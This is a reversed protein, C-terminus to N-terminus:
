IVQSLSVDVPWAKWYRTRHEMMFAPHYWSRRADFRTQWKGIHFLHFCNLQTLLVWNKLGNFPKRNAQWRPVSSNQMLTNQWSSHFQKSFIIMELM